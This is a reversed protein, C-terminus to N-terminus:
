TARGCWAVLRVDEVLVEAPPRRSRRSTNRGAAARAAIERELPLHHELLDAHHLVRRVIEDELQVVLREPAGM